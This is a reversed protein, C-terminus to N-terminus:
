CQLWERFSTLKPARFAYVQTPPNDSTSGGKDAQTGTRLFYDEIARATKEDKCQIWTAASSNLMAHHELRGAADHSIGVHWEKTAGGVAKMFSELKQVGDATKFSPM